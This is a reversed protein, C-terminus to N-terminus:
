AYQGRKSQNRKMAKVINEANLRYHTQWFSKRTGDSNYNDVGKAIGADGILGDLMDRLWAEM